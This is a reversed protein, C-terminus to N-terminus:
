SRRQAERRAEPGSVSRGGAAGAQLVSVLGQEVVQQAFVKHLHRGDDVTLATGAAGATPRVGRLVGRPVRRSGGQRGAQRTAAPVGGGGQPGAAKPRARLVVITCTHVSSDRGKLAGREYTLKTCRTVVHQMCSHADNHADRM